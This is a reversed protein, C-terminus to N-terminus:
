LVSTRYLDKISPYEEYWHGPEGCRLHERTSKEALGFHRKPQNQTWQLISLAIAMTHTQISQKGHHLM